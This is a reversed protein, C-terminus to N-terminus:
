VKEKEGLVTVASHVTMHLVEQEDARVKRLVGAAERRFLRGIL